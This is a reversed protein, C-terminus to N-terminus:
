DDLVIFGNFDYDFPIPENTVVVDVFVLGRAKEFRGTGGIIKRRPFRHYEL